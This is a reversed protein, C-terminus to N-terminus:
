SNISTTSGDDARWQRTYFLDGLEDILAQPYGNKVVWKHIDRSDKESDWIKPFGYKWGSPPDIWLKM